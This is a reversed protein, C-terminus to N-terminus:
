FKKHSLLFVSDGAEGLSTGWGQERSHLWPHGQVLPIGLVPPPQIQQEHTSLSPKVFVDLNICLVKHLTNDPGDVAHM